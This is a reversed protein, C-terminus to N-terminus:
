FDATLAQHSGLGLGPQSGHIKDLDGVIVTTMKGPALYQRAATAVETDTVQALRPVFEEFYTDPL